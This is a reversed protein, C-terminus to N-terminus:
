FIERDECERRVQDLLASMRAMTETALRTDQQLTVIYRDEFGTMKIDSWSEKTQNWEGTLQRIAKELRGSADQMGM